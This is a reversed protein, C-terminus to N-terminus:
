RNGNAGQQMPLPISLILMIVAIFITIVRKM